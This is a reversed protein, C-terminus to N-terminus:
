EQPYAFSHLAAMKATAEADGGMYRATFNKDAMLTQIEAKAQGPTLANGFGMNEGTVLSDEGLGSGLKSM